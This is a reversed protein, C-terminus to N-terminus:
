SDTAKNVIRRAFRKLPWYDLLLLCAAVTVLTPKCMLGLAFSSVVALYRRGVLTECLLKRSGGAHRGRPGTNAVGVLGTYQGNWHYQGLDAPAYIYYFRIAQFSAGFKVSHNGWIKTVNDLIQYVNQSERQYRGLGV